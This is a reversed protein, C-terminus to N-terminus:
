KYRSQDVEKRIKTDDTWIIRGTQNDTLELTVVYFKVSERGAQDNQVEITGKLLFDPALEKGMEKGKEAFASQDALEARTESADDKVDVKGSKVFVKRIEKLFIGTAVTEGDTRVQVKGLKVIANRNNKTKFSDAWPDSTAKQILDAAVTKADVDNWRGSLDKAAGSETRTVQVGGCGTLTLAGLALAPVLAFALASRM